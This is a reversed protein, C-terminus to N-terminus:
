GRYDSDLSGFPPAAKVAPEDAFCAEFWSARKFPYLAAPRHAWRDDHGKARQKEASWTERPNSAPSVSELVCLEIRGEASLDGFVRRSAPDDRAYFTGERLWVDHARRFRRALDIGNSFCIKRISPHAEVLSRVDAYKANRIASDLSGKRTSEAVVDWMAYGRSSLREIAEEYSASESHMLHPRVYDVAEERGDVHFGRRFGLADGVIHWFCNANTMFYGSYKLSNDSPQTGLLLTHPPVSAHVVPLFAGKKGEGEEVKARKEENRNSDDDDDKPTPTVVGFFFHPSRSRKLKNNSIPTKM